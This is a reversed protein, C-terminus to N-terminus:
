HAPSSPRGSAEADNRSALFFFNDGRRERFEIQMGGAQLEPVLWNLFALVGFNGFVLFRPHEAVFTNYDAVNMRFWPKVLDLMGREVSNHGLRKLALNPDALYVLRPRVDPPAYHSLITFYHPDAVVLPLQREPDSRLMKVYAELDANRIPMSFSSPEILERTQSLGFWGALCTLTVLGMRARSTFAVSTTFGGLVAFGVIAPLAYRNTFAGTAVKALMVCVIPILIFGCAAAIEHAPPQFRTSRADDRRANIMGDIGALVLVMALPVLMPSLLYFYFDVMNLWRPRAWFAGAYATGTRILPIQWVLPVVAIMLAAWVAVDVRRRNLTRVLEGLTLPLLILIGYYHTSFAAALSSTLAVLALVRRRGSAVTQWSVLAIASFGLVLAYPRADFAFYYAVSILPLVMACLASLPSARRAVYVFLCVLMVWFGLIEPLRLAVNNDGFVRLSLRTIVYFFPPTQEGRSLLATWVDRMTPLHAIYYTYLEDNWMLKRAALACTVGWYAISLGAGIVVARREVAAARADAWGTWRRHVTMIEGSGVPSSSM